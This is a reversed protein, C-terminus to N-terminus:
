SKDISQIGGGAIYPSWHISLATSPTAYCKNNSEFKLVVLIWIGTGLEGENWYVKMQLKYCKQFYFESVFNCIHKKLLWRYHLACLKNNRVNGVGSKNGDYWNSRKLYGKLLGWLSRWGASLFLFGDILCCGPMM